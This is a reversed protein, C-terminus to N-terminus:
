EGDNNKLIPIINLKKRKFERTIVDDPDVDIKDLGGKKAKTAPAVYLSRMASVAYSAAVMLSPEDQAEAQEVAWRVVTSEIVPHDAREVYENERQYLNGNMVLPETEVAAMIATELLGKADRVVQLLQDVVDLGAVLEQPSQRDIDELYDRVMPIIPEIDEATLTM